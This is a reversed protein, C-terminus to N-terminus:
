RRWARACSTTTTRSCLGCPWSRVTAARHPPTEPRLWGIHRCARVPRPGGLPRGGAPARPVPRAGRIRDRRPRRSGGPRGPPRGGRAPAPRPRRGSRRAPRVGSVRRGPAPRGPPDLGVGQRQLRVRPPDRGPRRGGRSPRCRHGPLSPHRAAPAGGPAHGLPPHPRLDGPGLGGHARSPGARAPGARPRAAPAAADRGRHTTPPSLTVTM